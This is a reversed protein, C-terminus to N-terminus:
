LGTNQNAAEPSSAGHETSCTFLLVCGWRGGRWKQEWKEWTWHQSHFLASAAEKRRLCRSRALVTSYISAQSGYINQHKISCILIKFSSGLKITQSVCTVNQQVPICVLSWFGSIKCINSYTHACHSMVRVYFISPPTRKTIPTRRSTTSRRVCM